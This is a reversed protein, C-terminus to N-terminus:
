PFGTSRPGSSPRPAPVILGEPTRVEKPATDVVQNGTFMSLWEITQPVGDELVRFDKATLGTVFAGDRDRVVVERAVFDTAVRFAPQQTRPTSQQALVASGLAILACPAVWRRAVPTM